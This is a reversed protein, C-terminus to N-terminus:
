CSLEDGGKLTISGIFEFSEGESKFTTLSPLGISEDSKRNVSKMTLKNMYKSYDDDRADGDCNFACYELKISQLKPM